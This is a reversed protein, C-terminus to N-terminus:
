VGAWSVAMRWARATSTPSMRVGSAVLLAGGHQGVGSVAMVSAIGAEGDLQEDLGGDVLGAAHGGAGLGEVWGGQAGNARIVDGSM